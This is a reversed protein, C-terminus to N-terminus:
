ASDWAADRGSATWRRARAVRGSLALSAAARRAGHQSPAALLAAALKGSKSAGKITGLYRRTGPHSVPSGARVTLDLFVQLLAHLNTPAPLEGLNLGSELAQRIVHVHLLSTTAVADLRPALRTPKLVGLALMTALTDGLETGDLRGDEIAAVLVDTAAASTGTSKAGLGAWILALAMDDIPEDADLLPELYVGHDEDWNQSSSVQGLGHAYHVERGIPWTWGAWRRGSDLPGAYLRGSGSFPNSAVACAYALETPMTKAPDSPPGPTMDLTVFTVDPLSMQGQTESSMLFRTPGAGYPERARRAAIMLPDSDDDARGVRPDQRAYRLARGLDGSAEAAVTLAEERGWPSLRLLAQVADILGVERGLQEAAVVRHALDVADIWGGTHTPMALLPATDGVAVRTAVERMRAHLFDALGLEITRWALLAEDPITSETWALM